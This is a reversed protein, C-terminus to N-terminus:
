SSAMLEELARVTLPPYTNAIPVLLSPMSELEVSVTLPPTTIAQPVVVGSAPKSQSSFVKVTVPPVIIPMPPVVEVGVCFTQVCGTAMKPPLLM